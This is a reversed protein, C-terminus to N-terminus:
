VTNFILLNFMSPKAIPNLRSHSQLVYKIYYDCRSIWFNFIGCTKTLSILDNVELFSIILTITDKPQTDLTINHKTNTSLNSVTYYFREDNGYSVFEEIRRIKSPPADM